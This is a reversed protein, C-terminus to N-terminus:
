ALLMKNVEIYSSGLQLYTRAIYINDNLKQYVDLAQNYYAISQHFNNLSYQIRGLKLHLDAKRFEEGNISDLLKLAELCLRQALLFQGKDMYVSALQEKNVALSELKKEEEYIKGAKLFLAYSSDLRGAVRERDALESIAYAYFVHDKNLKAKEICKQLYIHLSDIKDLNKFNMAIRYLVKVEKDQLNDRKVIHFAKKSYFLAEKPNRYSYLNELELLVDVREISSLKQDLSQKLSDIKAEDQAYCVTFFLFFLVFYNRFLNVSSRKVM